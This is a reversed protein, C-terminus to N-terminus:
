KLAACQQSVVDDFCDGLLFGKMIRLNKDNFDSVFIVTDGLALLAEFDSRLLVGAIGRIFGERQVIGYHFALRKIHATDLCKM